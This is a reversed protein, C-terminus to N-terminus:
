GQNFYEFFNLPKLKERPLIKASVVKLYSYKHTQKLLDGVFHLCIWQTVQMIIRLKNNLNKKKIGATHLLAPNGLMRFEQVCVWM